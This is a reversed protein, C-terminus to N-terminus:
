TASGLIAGADQLQQLLETGFKLILNVDLNNAQEALCILAQEGAMNEKEIINLLSFTMPNLEIFKVEFDCNRYVLLHTKEAQKPKKNKAIKHVAFDYQLLMYPALVPKQKLLDTNKSLALSSAPLHSVALEAWEYHALPYFYEPLNKQSQIYQLFQAPIERFIPSDAAFNAVFDHLVKAWIRKGFVAQCVPFCVSVSEAINNFVAKQYVAMRAPVVGVPKKHTQPNRIHATFEAQYRQFNLM